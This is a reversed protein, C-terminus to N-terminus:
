ESFDRTLLWLQLRARGMITSDVSFELLVRHNLPELSICGHFEQQRISTGIVIRKDHGLSENFAHGIERFAAVRGFDIGNDFGHLNGAHIQEVPLHVGVVIAADDREDALPLGDGLRRNAADALGGLQDVQRLVGARMRAHAGGVDNGENGDVPHRNFIAHGHGLVHARLDGAAVLNRDIKVLGGRRRRLPLIQFIDAAALELADAVLDGRLRLALRVEALRAHMRRRSRRDDARALRQDGIVDKQVGGIDADGLLDGLRHAERGAAQAEDFARAEQHAAHRLDRHVQGVELLRRDM